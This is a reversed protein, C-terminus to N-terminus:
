RQQRLRPAISGVTGERGGIGIKRTDDVLPVLHRIRCVGTHGDSRLAVIWHRRFAGTLRVEINARRTKRSNAPVGEASRVTEAKIQTHRFLKPQWTQFEQPFSCFEFQAAVKEVREVFEIQLGDAEACVLGSDLISLEPLSWAP